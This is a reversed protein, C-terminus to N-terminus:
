PGSYTKKWQFFVCDAKPRHSWDLWEGLAQPAPFRFWLDPFALVMMSVSNPAGQTGISAWFHKFRSWICVLKVEWFWLFWPNERTGLHTVGKFHSSEARCPFIAFRAASFLNEDRTNVWIPLSSSVKARITTTRQSRKSIHSDGRCPCTTIRHGTVIRHSRPGTPSTSLRNRNGIKKQCFFFLM